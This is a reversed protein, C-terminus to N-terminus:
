FRVEAAVPGPAELAARDEAKAMDSYTNLALVPMLYFVNLPILVPPCVLTSLAHLAAYGVMTWVYGEPARETLVPLFWVTPFFEGFVGSVVWFLLVKDAVDAHLDDDLWVPFAREILGKKPSIEKEQSILSNSAPPGLARGWRRWPKGARAFGDTGGVHENPPAAKDTVREVREPARTSRVRKIDDPRGPRCNRDTAGVTCFSDSIEGSGAAAPAAAVLGVCVWGLVTRGM